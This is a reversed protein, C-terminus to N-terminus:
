QVVLSHRALKWTGGDRRWEATYSGRAFASGDKTKMVFTGQEAISGAEQKADSIVVEFSVAGERIPGQWLGAISEAGRVRDQGEPTRLEFSAESLYFAAIQALDGKAVAASLAQYRSSLQKDAGSQASGGTAAGCVIAAAVVGGLVVNTWRGVSM